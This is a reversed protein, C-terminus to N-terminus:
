LLRNIVHEVNLVLSQSQSNGLTDSAVSRGLKSDDVGHLAEVVGIKNSNLKDKIKNKKRSILETNACINRFPLGLEVDSM